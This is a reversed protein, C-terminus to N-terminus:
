FLEDLDLDLDDLDIDSDINSEAEDDVKKKKKKITKRVPHKPDELITPHNKIVIYDVAIIMLTIIVADTMTKEDTNRTNYKMLLYIAM